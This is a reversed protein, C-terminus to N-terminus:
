LTTGKSGKYKVLKDDEICWVIWRNKSLKSKDLKHNTFVWIIPSGFIVEQFKYRFDIVYGNKICEIARMQSNIHTDSEGTRPLDLIYAPRPGMSCCAQILDKADGVSPIIGAWKKWGAMKMVKSKGNGGEPDYLVNVHRDDKDKLSEFISLQWPKWETIKALDWPVEIRLTVKSMEDAWPGDVRTDEKLCYFNAADTKIGENSTASFRAFKMPGNFSKNITTVRVKDKVHINGQWHLKGTEKGKEQQFVWKDCNDSLDKIIEEKDCEKHLTFSFYYLQINKAM